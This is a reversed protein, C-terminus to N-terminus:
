NEDTGVAQKDLTDACKENNSLCLESLIMPLYYLQVFGTIRTEFTTHGTHACMRATATHTVRCAASACLLVFVGDGSYSRSRFLDCTFAGRRRVPPPPITTPADEM